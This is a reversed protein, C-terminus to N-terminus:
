ESEIVAATLSMDTGLFDSILENIRGARTIPTFHGGPVIKLTGMKLEAAMLKAHNISVMDKEGVIVLTPAAIQGLDAPELKPFRKWMRLIKEELVHLHEGAGTWLRRFWYSLGKSPEIKENRVEPVLGAPNFNSSITVIKLVRQPWYLGLILATNGGDSWGVVHTQKINLEDLVAIADSALLRYSLEEDGLDSLGHGRTDPMIVRYGTKVLWPLQSFWILRNSLGGHLLLLSQGSGYSVFHIDAGRTRAYGETIAADTTWRWIIYKIFYSTVPTLYFIGMLLAGLLFIIIIRRFYKMGNESLLM